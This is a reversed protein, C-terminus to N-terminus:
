QSRALDAAGVLGAGAGLAAPVIAPVPRHGRGLLHQALAARAPDLLLDGAESLGGGVVVTGPDLAAVAGALGTGLWRGAAALVARSAPDGERALRTVDEGRLRDPDGGCAAALAASAAGGRRVLEQGDRRLLTGSVYQEWCGRNGCPCARGDPVVRVHGLEGALGHRGRQLRGETLVAGGIGTGLTILLLHSEGRGAGFRHEAWAAANADNDIVVPLDLRAALRDRLPEERWPLHPAFVVTGRAADVLGAVAVGVTDARHGTAAAGSRLEAIVSLLAEELVASPASRAPTDRRATALVAGARDVLGAKLRTGGVDVGISLPDHM